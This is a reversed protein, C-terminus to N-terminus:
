GFDGDACETRLLPKDNGRPVPHPTARQQRITDLLASRDFLTQNRAILGERLEVLCVGPLTLESGGLPVRAQWFNVFGDRMPTSATQTWVWDPYRALLREFYATLAGRGRIGAPLHPDSYFADETYFSALREPDNGTWAPLWVAAFKAAQQTDYGLFPRLEGPAPATSTV